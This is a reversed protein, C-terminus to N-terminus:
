IPLFDSKSLKFGFAFHQTVLPGNKTLLVPLAPHVSRQTLSVVAEPLMMGGTQKTLLTVVRPMSNALLVDEM